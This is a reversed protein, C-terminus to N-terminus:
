FILNLKKLSSVIKTKEETQLSNYPTLIHGTGVGSSHLLFLSRPIFDGNKVLLEGLADISNQLLPLEYFKNTSANQWTM